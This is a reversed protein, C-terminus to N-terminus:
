RGGGPRFLIVKADRLRGRQELMRRLGLYGSASYTREAAAFDEAYVLGAPTVACTRRLSVSGARLALPGPLTRVRYGPPLQITERTRSALTAALQLPYRRRPAMADPLLRALVLDLGGGQGPTTFVLGRRTRIGQGPVTLTFSVRVPLDLDDPDALRLDQIVAGPFVRGVGASFYSARRAPPLASLDERLSQECIGTPALRVQTALSGDAALVTALTIDMRNEDPPALPTAQIEEGQDSCVLAFKDQDESPLDQRSHEATPDLFRFGGARRIAAIAHDFHTGPVAVDWRAGTNILVMHADEGIARLLTVLLQAKDRCVGYKRALTQEASAPRFGAKEGTYATEVYRIHRATWFCLAQIREEQTTKGATLEAALRALAPTLEQGERCLNAYWRSVAKWSPITSAALTPVVEVEPPMAPEAVIPPQEGMEWRDTVRGNGTQQTFGAEGRYVKWALPMRAPLTVSVAQHLRPLGGQLPAALSFARDMPPADRAAELEVEVTSGVQLQPFSVLVLRLNQIYGDDDAPMPLDKINDAGVATEQGDPGIVVARKVTMHEYQDYYNDSFTALQAVGPQRLITARYHRSSLYKGDDAVDYAISSDEVVAMAQPWRAALSRWDADARLTLSVLGLMWWPLSSNM